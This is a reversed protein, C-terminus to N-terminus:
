RQGPIEWRVSEVTMGAPEVKGELNIREGVFVNLAADTLYSEDRLIEVKILTVRVTDLATEPQRQNRNQQNVTQTVNSYALEVTIDQAGPKVGEMYFTLAQGSSTFGLSAPKYAASWNANTDPTIYDSTSRAVAGDKKWLRLAGNTTQPPAGDYLFRVVLDNLPVATKLRLEIPTFSRTASLELVDPVGNTNVDADNVGFIKGPLGTQNEMDDEERSDAQISGNNNSDVDLDVHLMYQLGHIYWHDPPGGEGCPEGFLKSRWTYPSKSEFDSPLEIKGSFTHRNLCVFPGAEIWNMGQMESDLLTANGTATGSTFEVQAEVDFNNKQQEPVPTVLTFPTNSQEKTTTGIRKVHSSGDIDFETKPNQAYISLAGLAVLLMWRYHGPEKM